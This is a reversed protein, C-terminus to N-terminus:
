LKRAYFHVDWNAGWSQTISHNKKGVSHYMGWYGNPRKATGTGVIIAVHGNGKPNKTVGIVLYGNVANEHAGSRNETGINEWAQSNDLWDAISNANGQDIPINLESAVAKLFGSCDSKWKDWNGECANIIKQGDPNSVKPVSMNM